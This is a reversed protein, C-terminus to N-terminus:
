HNQTSQLVMPGNVGTGDSLKIFDQYVQILVPHSMDNEDLASIETFATAYGSTLGERAWIINIPGLADTAQFCINTTSLWPSYPPLTILEEDEETMRISYNLFGLNQGFKLNGYGRADINHLSQNMDVSGYTQEPLLSKLNDGKFKLQLADYFLRYNQGALKIKKDSINKFQTDFCLIESSESVNTPVLRLELKEQSLLSVLTCMIFCLLISIRKM